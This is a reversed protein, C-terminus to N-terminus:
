PSAATPPKRRAEDCGGVDKCQFLAVRARPPGQDSGQQSGVQGFARVEGQASQWPEEKM